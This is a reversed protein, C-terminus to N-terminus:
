IHIVNGYLKWHKILKQVATKKVQYYRNSNWKEGSLLQKQSIGASKSLYAAAIVLREEYSLYKNFYKLLAKCVSHNLYDAEWIYLYPDSKQSQHIPTLKGLPATKLLQRPKYEGSWDAIYNEDFVFMTNQYQANIDELLGMLRVLKTNPDCSSTLIKEIRIM